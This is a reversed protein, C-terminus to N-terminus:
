SLPEAEEWFWGDTETGAQRILKPWSRGRRRSGRWAEFDFPKKFEGEETPRLGFGFGAWRMLVTSGIPRIKRQEGPAAHPTHHEIVVGCPVVQHVRTIARKVARITEEKATEGDVLAYLPGIVLLDPQYATAQEVLWAVDEARELAMQPRDVIFLASGEHYVKAEQAARRLRRFDAVCDYETNECDVFLVRVPEGVKAFVFPHVGLAACGAIQKLLSSKGYGEFGTLVLVERQRLLSHMVWKSSTVERDVYEDWQRAVIPPQVDNYPVTVLVDNLALGHGLHDHADKGYRSEVIRVRAGEMMLVDRVHRAHDRGKDDTDAWVTVTADRLFPTYEDRWKGAGGPSTTATEKEARLADADKEGETIWVERGEAVATIVDTLRYLVRRVGRMNWRYGSPQTPDVIRQLFKKGPKRVVEFLLQGQEDVYPYVVDDFLEEWTLGAAARVDETECGAFCLMVVGDNGDKISLSPTDDDHVPCRVMWQGASIRVPGGDAIREATERANM